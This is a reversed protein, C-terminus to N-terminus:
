PNVHIVGGGISITGSVGPRTYPVPHPCPSGPYGYGPYGYIPQYYGYGYPSYGGYYSGDNLIYTRSRIKTPTYVDTIPTLTPVVVETQVVPQPVPKGLDPTADGPLPALPALPTNAAKVADAYEKAAKADQEIRKREQAALEALQEEEQMERKRNMEVRKAEALKRNQAEKETFVRAKAPDYNFKDKWEDSLNEFSVKAVGGEHVLTLGDPTAKMIRCNKYTEGLTTTLDFPKSTDVAHLVTMLSAIVVLVLTTKM